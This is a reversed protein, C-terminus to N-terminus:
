IYYPRINLLVPQKNWYIYIAQNDKLTRINCPNILNEVRTYNTDDEKVKKTGIIDALIRTTSSDAWSYFVRSSIGGNLIIDAESRWYKSELQSISQLIISISVKYKRITTIISSFYPIKQDWFEDLLCFIPIKTNEIDHVCFDFLQTYFLNLLFSYHPLKQEPITFFIATKRDRLDQFNITNKSLFNAINPNSLSDLAIQATSLFSQVTKDNWAIFWKYEDLIDKDWYVAIFEDFKKTLFYNLYRQVDKLSVEINELKEKKKLSKLIINIIKEAWANWFMDENSVSSNSSNILIKSIEKIEDHTNAKLLPNYCDTINLPNLVVIKYWKKILNQETIKRIEWSPDTIVLSVDDLALINPIIYSSTKWWWSRAILALHEFSHKLSLRKDKWDLLLWKNKSNLFKKTEKKNLFSADKNINSEKPWLVLFKIITVLFNLM